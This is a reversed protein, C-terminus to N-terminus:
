LRLKKFTHRIAASISLEHSDSMKMYFHASM